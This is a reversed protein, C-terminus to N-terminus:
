RMQFAYVPPLPEDEGVNLTSPPPPADPLEPPPVVLVLVDEGEMVTEGEM